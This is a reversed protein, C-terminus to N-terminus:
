ATHARAPRRPSRRACCKWLRVCAPSVFRGAASTASTRGRAVEARRGRHLVAFHVLGPEEGPAGRGAFGTISVAIDGDSRALAGRAMAEAVPASV